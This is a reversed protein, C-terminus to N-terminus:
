PPDDDYDKMNIQPHAPLNDTKHVQRYLSHGKEM